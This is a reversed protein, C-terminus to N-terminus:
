AINNAVFVFADQDHHAIGAGSELRAFDGVRQLAFADIGIMPTSDKQDVLEHIFHLEELVASFDVHNFLLATAPADARATLQNDGGADHQAPLADQALRIHMRALDHRRAASGQPSFDRPHRLTLYGPKPKERRVSLANSRSLLGW